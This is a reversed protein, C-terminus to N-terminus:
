RGAEPIVRNWGIYINPVENPRILLDKFLEVATLAGQANEKNFYYCDKAIFVATKIVAEEWQAKTFNYAVEKM